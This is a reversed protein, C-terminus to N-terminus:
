DKEKLFLFATVIMMIPFVTCIIFGSNLGTNDAIAGLLWPGSSCGFDGSLAILSFMFTGGNPFTKVAFSLTGPWFMSVTFGCVACAVLSIAPIKCIGVVLYCATCLIGSIIIVKLYPIKESFLAYVIRGIGMFVAFACPGLLDGVTKSVKLGNQAFISAWQSMAIESAGSCVMFIVLYLFKKNFINEKDLTKSTKEKPEVVKVTAFFIMNCFPIVAWILPVYRWLSYGLMSVLFTTVTVTFVQGWCYFSHLVAMNGSKNDTPLYEVIPSIVVEIVGSGFAYIMVSIIIATYTDIFQPLIFLSVLGLTAFIHCLVASNKLGVRKVIYPTLFDAFIQTFFNIFVLRGLSEYSLAYQSKFIVFLIPLFNNIIAQVIYGGYCALRTKKYSSDM